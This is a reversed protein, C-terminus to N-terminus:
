RGAGQGSHAVGRADSVPEKTPTNRRALKQLIGKADAADPPHVGLAKWLPDTGEVAPVFAQMSGFVARGNRVVAPRRWGVNTAILGDGKAFELRLASLSLPGTRRPAGRGPIQSALARYLPAAHDAAVTPTPLFSIEFRAYGASSNTPDRTAQLAWSQSYRQCAANDLQDNIYESPNNGFFAETVATRIRLRDPETAAGSASTLWPVSAAKAVWWANVSGRPRWSYYDDVARVKTYPTLRDWARNLSNLVANARRIRDGAKKERAINSVVADLDPSILILWRIHQGLKTWRLM